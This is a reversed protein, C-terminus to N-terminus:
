IKIGPPALQATLGGDVYLVQGTIYAAADSALFAVAAAVEEGTCERGLPIRSAFEKVRDSRSRREEDYPTFGPAVANVRIGHPALDLAMARTLADIAGKSADYGPTGRHARLGGVSSIHIITGGGHDAMWRCCLRSMLYVMRLNQEFSRHYLDEDLDLFTAGGKWAASNVLLDVGGFRRIAEDFVARAGDDTSVDATVWVCEAGLARVKEAAAEGLDASRSSMVVKMGQRGLLRAAHYGIGRSAGTVVAVKGALDGFRASVGASAESSDM